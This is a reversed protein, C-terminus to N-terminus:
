VRTRNIAVFNLEFEIYLLHLVVMLPCFSGLWLPSLITVDQLTHIPFVWVPGSWTVSLTRRNIHRWNWKCKIWVRHIIFATCGNTPLAISTIIQHMHYSKGLQLPSLIPAAQVLPFVWVPGTWSLWIRQDFSKLGHWICDLFFANHFM